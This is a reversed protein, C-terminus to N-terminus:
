GNRKKGKKRRPIKNRFINRFNKATELFKQTYDDVDEEKNNIMKKREKDLDNEIFFGDDEYDGNIYNNLLEEVTKGMIYIVEYAENKQYLEKIKTKNYDKNINTYKGSLECSFLDKIKTNLFILNQNSKIPGTFKSKIRLLLKPYKNGKKAEFDEYKKNIFNMASEIFSVKIKHIINDEKSKSHYNKETKQKEKFESKKWRGRKKILEKKEKNNIRNTQDKNISFIKEPKRRRNDNDTIYSTKNIYYRDDNDTYDSEKKELFLPYLKDLDEYIDNNSRGMMSQQSSIFQSSVEDFPIPSAM